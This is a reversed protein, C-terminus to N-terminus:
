HLPRNGRIAGVGSDSGSGRESNARISSGTSTSAARGPSPFSATRVATEDDAHEDREKPRVIYVAAEDEEWKEEADDVFAKTEAVTEHPNWPMHRTVEEIGDDDSCIRYYEFLDFYEHCLRELLLRDTEIREPFVLYVYHRYILFTGGAAPDRRAPKESM